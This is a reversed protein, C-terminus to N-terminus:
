EAGAQKRKAKIVEAIAGGGVLSAIIGSGVYPDVAKLTIAGITILAVAVAGFVMIHEPALDTKIKLWGLFGLLSAVSVGLLFVVPNALIAVLILLFILLGIGWLLEQYQKNLGNYFAILQALIGKPKSKKPLVSEGYWFKFCKRGLKFEESLDRSL